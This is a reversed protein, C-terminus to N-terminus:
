ERLSHQHKQMCRNSMDKKPQPLEELPQGHYTLYPGRLSALLYTALAAVRPLSANSQCIEM